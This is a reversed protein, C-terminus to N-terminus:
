ATECADERPGGLRSVASIGWPSKCNVVEYSKMVEEERFGNRLRMGKGTLGRRARKEAKSLTHITSKVIL